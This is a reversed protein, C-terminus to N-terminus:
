RNSVYMMDNERDLLLDIKSRYQSNRTEVM